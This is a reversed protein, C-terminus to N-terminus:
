VLNTTTVIASTSPTTVDLPVLFASMFIVILLWVRFCLLKCCRQSTKFRHLLGVCAVLVGNLETHGRLNGIRALYGVALQDQAGAALTASLLEKSHSEDILYLAASQVNGECETLAHRCAAIPFGLASLRSMCAFCRDVKFVLFNFLTLILSLM